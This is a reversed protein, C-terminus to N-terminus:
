ATLETIVGEHDPYDRILEEQKGLEFDEFDFGPAATCGVLTYADPDDSGVKAAMWCNAKVTVQFVAAKEPDPGLLNETLHGENDIVYLKLPDGTYFHWLEDSKLRHFASFETGTLLFYIASGTIRDSNFRVPLHEAKIKEEAIYTEQYYGGEPHQQLQLKDIWYDASYM